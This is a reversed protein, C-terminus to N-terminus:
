KVKLQFLIPFCHCPETHPKLGRGKPDLTPVAGQSQLGGGSAQGRQGRSGPSSDKALCISPQDQTRGPHGRDQLRGRDSKSQPNQTAKRQSSNSQGEWLQWDAPSGALILQHSCLSSPPSPGQQRQEPPKVLIATDGRYDRCSGPHYNQSPHDTGKKPEPNSAAEQQALRATQGDHVM